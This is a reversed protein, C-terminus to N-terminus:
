IRWHYINVAPSFNRIDKNGHLSRSFLGTLRVISEVAMSLGRNSAWLLEPSRRLIANLKLGPQVGILYIYGLCARFPVGLPVILQCMLNARWRYNPQPFLRTFFPVRSMNLCGRRPIRSDQFIPLPDSSSFLSTRRM